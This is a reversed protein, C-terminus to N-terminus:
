NVLTLTGDSTDDVNRLQQGTLKGTNICNKAYFYKTSNGSSDYGIAGGVSPGYNQSIANGLFSIMAYNYTETTEGENEGVAGGINECDHRFNVKGYNYNFQMKAGSRNVGVLGGLSGKSGEVTANNRCNAIFGYNQGCIAGTYTANSNINGNIVCERITNDNQGALAAANTGSLASLSVNLNISQLTGANCSIFATTGNVTSFSKITVTHEDNALYGEFRAIPTWPETIVIDAYILYFRDRGYNPENRLMNLQGATYIYGNTEALTLERFVTEFTVSQTVIYKAGSEYERNRDSWKVEYGALRINPLSIETGAVYKEVRDTFIEFRDSDIVGNGIFQINFLEKYVAYLTIDETFDGAQIKNIVADENDNTLAWGHFRYGKLTPSPLSFNDEVTFETKYEGTLIGGNLVYRITYTAVNWKAYFTSDKYNELSGILNGQSDSIQRGTASEAEYWGGFAYGNRNVTSFKYEKTFRDVLVTPVEEATYTEFNIYIGRTIIEAQGCQERWKNSITMHDFIIKQNSKWEACANDHFAILNNSIEIKKLNYCQKFANEGIETIGVPLVNSDYDEMCITLLNKCASFMDTAIRKMNKPLTIEKTSSEAFVYEADVNLMTASEYFTANECINIIDINNGFFAGSCINIPYESEAITLSHLSCSLFAFMEIQLIPKGDPTNESSLVVSAYENEIQQDDSVSYGEVGNITIPNYNIKVEPLENERIVANCSSFANATDWSAKREGAIYITADNTFGRFATAGITEVSETIVYNMKKCFAFANAGIDKIRPAMVTELNKCNLFANNGICTVTHPIVVKKLNACSAFGNNSIKTVPKGKYTSPIVVTTLSKDDICVDYETGDNILNFILNGDSEAKATVSHISFLMSMGLFMFCFVIGICLWKTKGKKM